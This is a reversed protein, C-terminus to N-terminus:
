DPVPTKGKTCRAKISAWTSIYTGPEKGLAIRQIADFVERSRVAEAHRWWRFIPWDPLFSDSLYRGKLIYNALQKAHEESKPDIVGFTRKLGQALNVGRLNLAASSMQVLITILLSVVLMILVFAILTDLSDLM